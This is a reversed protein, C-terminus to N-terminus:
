RSKIADAVVVAAVEEKVAEVAMAVVSVVVKVKVEEQEQGQLVLGAVRNKTWVLREVIQAIM